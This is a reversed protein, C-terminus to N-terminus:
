IDGLVFRVRSVNFDIVTDLHCICFKSGHGVERLASFNVKFGSGSERIGSNM